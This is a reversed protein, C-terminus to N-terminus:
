LKGLTIKTKIKEDRSFSAIAGDKLEIFGTISDNHADKIIQICEYNDNSYVRINKSM